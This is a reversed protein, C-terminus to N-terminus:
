ICKPHKKSIAIKSINSSLYFLATIGLVSQFDLFLNAVPVFYVSPSFGGVMGLIESIIALIIVIPLYQTLM